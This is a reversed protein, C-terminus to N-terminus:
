RGRGILIDLKTQVYKNNEAIADVKDVLIALLITQAEEPRKLGNKKLLPYVRPAVTEILGLWDM